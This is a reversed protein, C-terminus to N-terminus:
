LAIACYSSGWVRLGTLAFFWSLVVPLIMGSRSPQQLTKPQSFRLAATYICHAGGIRRDFIHSTPLGHSSTCLLHQRM